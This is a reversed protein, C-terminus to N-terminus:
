LLDPHLQLIIRRWFTNGKALRSRRAMLPSMFSSM